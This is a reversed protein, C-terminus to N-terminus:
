LGEEKKFFPFGKNKLYMRRLASINNFIRWAFIVTISLFLDIGINDGIWALGYAVIVNFIFGSYFLYSSFKNVVGCKVGGVISDLLTISLVAIYSGGIHPFVLNLKWGIFLGSIFSLFIILWKM